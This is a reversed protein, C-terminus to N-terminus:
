KQLFQLAADKQPDRGATIDDGTREVKKDPAIGEKDINKGNPTFWRAITVKLLGGNPLETPSQVSGKGFSQQGILTAVQHDHLAGATIESASASGENILVVTKVRELTAPGTSEYTKVVVGGRKEELVTKGRPLWIGALDVSANLIGGPNNRLDLVVGKVGAKKFENAAQQAMDATTDDFRAVQLYGINGELIEHKVSPVTIKARTIEFDLEESKDRIVKLKVSTGAEGRIKSVAESVSLDYASEGNIEAIIDQPRLGAKEAPYGAIPAVIVIYKDKKGLEAGIGSFTGNLDGNFEEAEEANFFETYPDGTAAAMGRKMGDVLDQESLQGDFRTRLVDYMQEVSSFDLNKPLNNAVPDMSGRLVISGNGISIGLFFVAVLVIVVCLKRIGSRQTMNRFTQVIKM